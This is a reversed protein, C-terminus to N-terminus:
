GSEAVKVSGELGLSRFTNMITEITQYFGMEGMFLLHGGCGSRCDTNGFGDIVPSGSGKLSLVLACELRKKSNSYVAALAKSLPLLHDIHWHKKTDHSTFTKFHRKLRTAVGGPGLASGVYVYIGPDLYFRRRGIELSCPKPVQIILAYVGGM